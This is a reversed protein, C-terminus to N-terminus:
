DGKKKRFTLCIWEEQQASEIWQLSGTKLYHQCLRRDEGELLGSLILIGGNKLHRILSARMRRLGRLDINAVIVDFRSRVTGITGRRIKVIHSVLNKEVNERAIEISLEDHDLGRVDRAGLKAAVISLIGSGTGVDLVSLGKRRLRRELMQICLKTTPHTGTGFALGPIIEIAMQGRKLKVSSWPPKVVIQSTVQVPKFFRKWNEGWDKEPLTGRHLEYQFAKPFITQVSALYRRIAPLVKKERARQPFYAKLTRWKTDEDVEEIGDAGQEMLFNSVPEAFESPVSLDVELWHKM